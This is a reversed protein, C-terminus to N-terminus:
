STEEFRIHAHALTGTRELLQRSPHGQRILVTVRRGHAWLREALHRLAWCGGATLEAVETLDLTVDGDLGRAEEVLREGDGEWVNGRVVLWASADPVHFREIAAV